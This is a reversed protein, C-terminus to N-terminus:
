SVFLERMFVPSNKEATLYGKSANFCGTCLCAVCTSYVRRECMRECVCPACVRSKASRRTGTVRTGMCSHEAYECRDKKKKKGDKSSGVSWERM